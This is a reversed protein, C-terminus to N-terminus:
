RMGSKDGPKGCEHSIVSNTVLTVRRTNCQWSLNKQPTRTARDNTRQTTNQLDNNTM